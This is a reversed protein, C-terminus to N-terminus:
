YVSILSSMGHMDMKIQTVESLINVLVMQKGAFNLIICTKIRLVIVNHLYVVIEGDMRRNFFM